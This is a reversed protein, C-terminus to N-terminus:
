SVTFLIPKTYWVLGDGKVSPGSDYSVGNFDFKFDQPGGWDIGLALMSYEGAALHIPFNGTLGSDVGNLKIRGQYPGVIIPITVDVLNNNGSMITAVEFSAGWQYVLFKLENDTAIVKIINESM